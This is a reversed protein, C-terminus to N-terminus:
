PKRVYVEDLVEPRGPTKKTYKILGGPIYGAAEFYQPISPNRFPNEVIVLKPDWRACNFGQLVGLEEGDVDLSLFDLRPFDFHELCWDLTRVKVPYSVPAEADPCFTKKFRPSLPALSSVPETEGCPESPRKYILLKGDDSNAPGCAVNLTLARNDKLYTYYAENPEICLVTWGAEELHLTNSLYVGDSAGIELAYGKFDAPFTKAVFDTYTSM